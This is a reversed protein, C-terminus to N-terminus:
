RDGILQMYLISVSNERTIGLKKRTGNGNRFCCGHYSPFLYFSGEKYSEINSFKVFIINHKIDLTIFEKLNTSRKQEDGIHSIQQYFM